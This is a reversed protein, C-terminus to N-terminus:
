ESGSQQSFVERLKSTFGKKAADMAEGHTSYTKLTRHVEVGWLTIYGSFMGDAPESHINLM